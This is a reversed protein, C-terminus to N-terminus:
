ICDGDYGTELIDDFVNSVEDFDFDKECECDEELNGCIECIM